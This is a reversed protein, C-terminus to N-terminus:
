FLGKLSRISHLAGTASNVAGATENVADTSQRRKMNELEIERATLRQQRAYQKAEADSIHAGAAGRNAKLHKADSGAGMSGSGGCATLLGSSFIISALLITTKKM